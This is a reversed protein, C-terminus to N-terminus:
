KLLHSITSMPAAGIVFKNILDRDSKKLSISATLENCKAVAESKSLKIETEAADVGPKASFSVGSISKRMGQSVLKTLGAAAESFKLELEKIHSDKDSLAKELAELRSETESKKMSKGFDPKDKPAEASKEPAPPTAEPAPAEPAPQSGEDAGPAEPAKSGIAQMLAAHSAMVHMKLEEVPLKSYEAVLAEPSAEETAPNQTQEDPTAEPAPAEPAVDDKSGEPGEDPSSEPTEKSEEKSGEGSAEDKVAPKASSSDPVEESSSEQGPATKALEDSKALVSSVEESVQDILKNLETASLKM